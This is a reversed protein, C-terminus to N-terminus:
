YITKKGCDPCGRCRGTQRVQPCACVWWGEGTKSVIKRNCDRRYIGYKTGCPICIRRLAIVDNVRVVPREMYEDDDCSPKQPLVVRGAPQANPLRACDKGRKSGHPICLEYYHRGGETDGRLARKAGQYYLPRYTECGPPIEGASVSSFPVGSPKPTIPHKLRSLANNSYTEMSNDRDYRPIGYSSEVFIPTVGRLPGVLHTEEYLDRYYERLDGRSTVGKAGRHQVYTQVDSATFKTDVDTLWEPLPKSPVTGLIQIYEVRMDVKKDTDATDSSGRKRQQKVTRGDEDELLPGEFYHPPLIKYCTYCGWKGLMMPDPKSKQQSPKRRTRTINTSEGEGESGAGDDGDYGSATGGSDKAKPAKQPFNKLNYREEALITDTRKAWPIAELDVLQHLRYSCQRLFIQEKYDCHMLIRMFIERPLQELISPATPKQRQAIIVAPINYVREFTATTDGYDPPASGARSDRSGVDLESLGSIGVFSGPPTGEYCSASVVTGHSLAPSGKVDTASTVSSSRRSQPSLYHGPSPFVPHIPSGLSPRASPGQRVPLPLLGRERPPSPEYGEPFPFPDLNGSFSREFRGRQLAQDIWSPPADELRQRKRLPEEGQQQQRQQQRLSSPEPRQQPRSSYQPDMFELALAAYASTTRLLHIPPDFLRPRPQSQGSDPECVVISPLSATAEPPNDQGSRGGRRITPATEDQKSTM